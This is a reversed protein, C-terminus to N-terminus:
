RTWLLTFYLNRGAPSVWRRGFRGRGASQEEAMVLTGDDAGEGAERRAVDMTSSTSTLYVVRRGVSRTQLAHAVADLNLWM